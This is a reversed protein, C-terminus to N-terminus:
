VSICRNRVFTGPGNGWCSEGVRQGERLLPHGQERDEVNSCVVDGEGRVKDHRGRAAWGRAGSGQGAHGRGRVAAFLEGSRSREGWGFRSGLEVHSYSLVPGTGGAAAPKPSPIDRVPVSPRASGWDAITNYLVPM